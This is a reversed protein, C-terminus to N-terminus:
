VLYQKQPPELTAEWWHYSWSIKKKKSSVQEIIQDNIKLPMIETDKKRFDTVMEKTENVNLQLYNTNRCQVFNLFKSRYAIKNKHDILGLIGNHDAFKLLSQSLLFM